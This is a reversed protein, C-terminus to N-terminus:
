FGRRGHRAAAQGSRSDEGQWPPRVSPALFGACVGLCNRCVRVDRLRYSCSISESPWALSAWVASPVLLTSRTPRCPSSIQASACLLYLSPTMRPWVNTAAFLAVTARLTREPVQVPRANVFGAPDPRMRDIRFMVPVIPVTAITASFETASAAFTLGTAAATVCPVGAVTRGASSPPAATATPRASVAQVRGAAGTQTRCRTPQFQTVPPVPVFWILKSSSTAPAIASDGPVATDIWATVAATLPQKEIVQSSSGNRDYGAEARDLALVVGRKPDHLALPLLGMRPWPSPVARGPAAVACFSVCM